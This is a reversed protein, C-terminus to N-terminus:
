SIRRPGRHIVTDIKREAFRGATVDRTGTRLPTHEGRGKVRVFMMLCVSNLRVSGAGVSSVLCCVDVSGSLVLVMMGPVEQLSGGISLTWRKM